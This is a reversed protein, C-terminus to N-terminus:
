GPSQLPKISLYGSLTETLLPHPIPSTALTYHTIVPHDTPNTDVRTWWSFWYNLDYHPAESGWLTWHFNLEHCKSLRKTESGDLHACQADEARLEGNGVLWEASTRSTTHSTVCHRQPKPTKAALMRHTPYQPPPPGIGAELHIINGNWGPPPPQHWGPKTDSRFQPSKAYQFADM